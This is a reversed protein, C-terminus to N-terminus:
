ARRMGGMGVLQTECRSFPGIMAGQGTERTRSCMRTQHADDNASQLQTPIGVASSLRQITDRRSGRYRLPPHRSHHVDEIAYQRTEKSSIGNEM